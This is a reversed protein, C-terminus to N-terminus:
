VSAATLAQAERLEAWPHNRPEANTAQWAALQVIYFPFDGVGFSARWDAILAPLLRRYQAAREANAEGQYWITGKIAFPVLPAIMGNFLVTPLHPDNGDPPPPVAGLKSLPATARMKWEGALSLPTADDDDRPAIRVQAPRAMLGGLGITDLVRI